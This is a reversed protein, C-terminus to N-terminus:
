AYSLTIQTEAGQKRLLKMDNLIIQLLRQAQKETPIGTVFQDYKYVYRKQDFNGQINSDDGGPQIKSMKSIPGAEGIGAIQQLREVENISQKM